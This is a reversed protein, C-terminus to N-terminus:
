LHAITAFCSPRYTGKSTLQLCLLTLLSIHDLRFMRLPRSQAGSVFYGGKGTSGEVLDRSLRAAIDSLSLGTLKGGVSVPSGLPALATFRKLDEPLSGADAVAASPTSAGFFAVASAASASKALWNRRSSPQNSSPRNSATKASLATCTAPFSAALAVLLTCQPKM